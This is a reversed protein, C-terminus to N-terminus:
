SLDRYAQRALATAGAVALAEDTALRDARSPWPHLFSWGQLRGWRVVERASVPLLEDIAAVQPVYGCQIGPAREVSGAIPAILGLLTKLFTSKGAGNRGLIVHFKGRRVALDIAPLIPRGGYGVVLGTCRLAVEDTM